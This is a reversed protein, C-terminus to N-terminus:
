YRYRLGLDATWGYYEQATPFGVGLFSLDPRDTLNSLNVYVSLSRGFRQQLMADWRVYTDTLGDEESFEGIRTLSSQQYLMSVRGSFGRLDYGISVNAIHEPQDIMRGVRFTDISTQRFPPVADRKLVTRPYRTESIIRAYNVNLVLGSLLGPLYTFHTQWEAEIGKVTTAFENNVPETLRFGRTWAPLNEAEPDLVTKEKLYIVNDIEKYFAGITFLGVRNPYLSILADYNLASAPRLEPNGRDVRRPSEQIRERPSYQPFDPRSLSRTRALRMDLWDTVRLRLHVMPFWQGFSQTSSTDSMFGVETRENDSVGKKANHETHTFEYRIGPLVMLRRGLNIEAMGYGATIEETMDFDALDTFRTRFYRSAIRDYVEALLDRDLMANIDYQGDLFNKAERGEDLFSTVALRGQTTVDFEMESFAERLFRNGDGFTFPLFWATEDNSRSKGRYKGGVKAYGTMNSGLRLPLEVNARGGFERELMDVNRFDGDQLFTEELRNKAAKPIVTPGETRALGETFAAVESFIFGNDYPHDQRSVSHSVSGDFHLPGVQQEFELANSLVDVTVDRDRVAYSVNRQDISYGKAWRSEDRDLRSVFSSLQLRGQPLRYDAVLSAGRRNRIEFRDTLTLSNIDIPIDAGEEVQRAQRAYAANFVDSGRDTRELNVKAIAGLRGGFFRDSLSIAGKYSEFSSQQNNYGSQVRVDSRFGEPADMLRFNVTGGIMDADRDPTLAKTVEIGALMDSSIMSLDTSRDNFDTGPIRQGNVLVNNFKPSLGRIAVKQGEGADRLISVGPLRGVSEAANVDPLEQIRTASVINVITNSALQQNIAAVQGEAQALIVVERGEIVDVSLAVDQVVSSGSPVTITVQEPRYGIFSVVLTQEGEPVGGLRYRGELDTAAGLATGAIRVSAGPLALDSEADVVRGSVAGPAPRKQRRAPAAIVIPDMDKVVIFQGNLSLKLQMGSDRIAEQMARLVTVDDLHLTVNADLPVRDRCFAVRFGGLSAIHTLARRRSVGTLRVDVTRNLADANREYVATRRFEAVVEAYTLLSSLDMGTQEQATAGPVLLLLLGAVAFVRVPIGDDSRHLRSQYRKWNRIPVDMRPPTVHVLHAILRM